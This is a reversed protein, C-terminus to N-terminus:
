EGKFKTQINFSVSEPNVVLLPYMEPYSELYDSLDKKAVYELENAKFEAFIKKSEILGLSYGVRKGYEYFSAMLLAAVAALLIGAFIM